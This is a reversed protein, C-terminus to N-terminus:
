KEVFSQSRNKSRQEPVGAFSFGNLTWGSLCVRDAQSGHTRFFRSRRRPCRPQNESLKMCDFVRVSIQGPCLCNFRNNDYGTGRLSFTLRGDRMTSEDDPLPPLPGIATVDFSFGEYTSGERSTPSACCSMDTANTLCGQRTDWYRKKIKCKDKYTGWRTRRM